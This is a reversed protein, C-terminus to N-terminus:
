RGTKGIDVVGEERVLFFFFFFLFSFFFFGLGNQTTPISMPAHECEQHGGETGLPPPNKGQEGGANERSAIL